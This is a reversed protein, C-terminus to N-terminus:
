HCLVGELNTGPKWSLVGLVRDRLGLRSLPQDAMKARACHLSHLCAASNSTKDLRLKCWNTTESSWTKEKLAMYCQQSTISCSIFNHSMALYVCIKEKIHCCNKYNTSNKYLEQPLMPRDTPFCKWSAIMYEEMRCLSIGHSTSHSGQHLWGSCRLFNNICLFPPGKHHRTSVVNQKTRGALHYWTTWSCGKKEDSLKTCHLSSKLLHAM